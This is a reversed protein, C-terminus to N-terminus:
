NIELDKPDGRYLRWRRGLVWVSEAENANFFLPKGYPPARLTFEKDGNKKIEVQFNWMWAEVHNGSKYTIHILVQKQISLKM